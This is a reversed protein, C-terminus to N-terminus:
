NAQNPTTEMSSIDALSINPTQEHLQIEADEHIHTKKKKPSLVKTAKCKPTALRSKAQKVLSLAMM